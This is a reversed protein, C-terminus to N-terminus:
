SATCRVRRLIADAILDGRDCHALARHVADDLLSPTQEFAARAREREDDTLTSPRAFLRDPQNM